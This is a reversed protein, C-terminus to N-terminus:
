TGRAGGVTAAEYALAAAVLSDPPHGSGYLDNVGVYRHENRMWEIDPAIFAGDEIAAVYNSFLAKRHAGVMKVGGSRSTKYDDIVSGLGTADHLAKGKFRKVRKDFRAVMRPYPERQRREFAVLKYPSVDTKWTVIVTYDQEKAWDAGTVYRANEKPPEIEVYEGVAGKYEGLNRDFMKDVWETIIARGEATPEQLDYEVQWMTATTDHRKDEIQENLLWGDDASTELYSWEHISWEKERGRKLVETMTRDPYHHTSSCVTQDPIVIQRNVVKAMTQGMAADFLALAMEDVEDLRLRQPHPGRVSKSSAMLAQITNGYIFRSVTTLPPGVWRDRPCHPRKYLEQSIYDQVNKSQAGSGGLIKVNAKLTLAETLGLLALLFSKGGFGRSAKWISVRSHAFYAEVFARWPTSHGPVIITNPIRAGFAVWVFDRLAEENTLPLNWVYETAGM